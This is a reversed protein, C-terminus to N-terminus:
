ANFLSSGSFIPGSVHGRQRPRARPAGVGWRPGFPSFNPSHTPRETLKGVGVRKGSESDPHMRPAWKVRAQEQLGLRFQALNQKLPLHAEGRPSTNPRQEPGPGSIPGLSHGWPTNAWTQIHSHTKGKKRGLKAM